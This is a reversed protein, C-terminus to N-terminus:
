VEEKSTVFKDWQEDTLEDVPTAFREWALKAPEKYEDKLMCKPWTLIEKDDRMHYQTHCQNCRCRAHVLGWELGTNTGCTECKWKRDIPWNMLGQWYEM